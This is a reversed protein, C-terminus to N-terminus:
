VRISKLGLLSCVMIKIITAMAATAALKIKRGTPVHIAQKKGGSSHGGQGTGGTLIDQVKSNKSGLVIM